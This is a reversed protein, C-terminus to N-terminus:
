AARKQGARIRRVAQAQELNYANHALRCPDCMHTKRRKHRSYGAISGCKDDTRRISSM